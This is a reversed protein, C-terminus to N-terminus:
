NHPKTSSTTDLFKTIRKILGVQALQSNFEVGVAEVSHIVKVPISVKPAFASAPVGYWSGSTGRYFAVGQHIFSGQLRILQGVELPKNPGLQEMDFAVTKKAVLKDQVGDKFDVYSAKYDPESVVPEVVAVPAAHIAAEVNLAAEPTTSLVTQVPLAADTELVNQVIVPPPTSVVPASIATANYFIAKQITQSPNSGYHKSFLDRTGYWPDDIILNGNNYAYLRVFHTQIGDQPNHDFDLELFAEKGYADYPTLTSIDFSNNGPNNVGAYVFNHPFAKALMGDWCLDGDVYGGNTFPSNENDTFLQDLSKPDINIGYNTASMAQVAVYCGYQGITAGNVTGLRESSWRADRQSYLAM